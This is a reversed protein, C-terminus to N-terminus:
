EVVSFEFFTLGNDSIAEYRGKGKDVIRFCASNGGASKLYWTIEFCLRDGDLKWHGTDDCKSNKDELRICVSGDSKWSWYVFGSGTRRQQQWVRDSILSKAAKADLTAAAAPLGACLAFFPILFPILLRPCTKM